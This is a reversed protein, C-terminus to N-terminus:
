GASDGARESESVCATAKADVWHLQSSPQVLMQLPLSVSRGGCTSVSWDRGPVLISSWCIAPVSCSTRCKLTELSVLLLAQSCISPTVTSKMSVPMVPKYLWLSRRVGLDRSNAAVASLGEPAYFPGFQKYLWLSMEVGFDRLNADEAALEDPAYAFATAAM